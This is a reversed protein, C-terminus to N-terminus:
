ETSTLISLGLFRSFAPIIAEIVMPAPCDLDLRDQRSRHGAHADVEALKLGVRHIVRDLNTNGALGVHSSGPARLIDPRQPM